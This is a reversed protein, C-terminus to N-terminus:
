ISKKGRITFTTYTIREKITITHLINLSYHAEEKYSRISGEYGNDIKLATQKEIIWERWLNLYWGDLAATPPLVVEINLM